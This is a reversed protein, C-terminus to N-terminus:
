LLRLCRSMPPGSSNRPTRRSRGFRFHDRNDLYIFAVVLTLPKLRVTLAFIATQTMAVSKNVMQNAKNSCYRQADLPAALSSLFSCGKWTRKSRRPASAPAPAKVAERCAMARAFPWSADNRRAHQYSFTGCLWIRILYVESRLLRRNVLDGCQGHGM